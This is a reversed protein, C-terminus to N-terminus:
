YGWWQFVWLQMVGAQNFILQAGYWTNVEGKSVMVCCVITEKLTSPFIIEYFAFFGFNNTLVPPDFIPPTPALDLNIHSTFNKNHLPMIVRNGYTNAMTGGNKNENQPWYQPCFFIDLICPIYAMWKIVHTHAWWQKDDFMLKTISLAM